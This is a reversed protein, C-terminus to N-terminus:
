AAREDLDLGTLAVRGPPLDFLLADGGEPGAVLQLVAEGDVAVADGDGLPRGDLGLTGRAVHLYRVRGPAPDLDLAQGGTLRLLDVRVDQHVELPAGSAWPGVMRTVGGAGALAATDVQQWRPAHGSADPLIWIQLFRMPAERSGNFESHRIGTGASMVQMEGARVAGQNGLSDRHELTGDLVLTLIEMDRHGHTPFGAGPELRDDNLVRLVSLQENAPDVYAGFSFSHRSHLGPFRGEGRAESSRLLRM